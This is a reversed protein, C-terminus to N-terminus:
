SSKKREAALEALHGDYLRDAIPVYEKYWDDNGKKNGGILLIANRRPDFAYLVRYPSGKHQIRLERMHSHRSLAIGSSHPFNLNAGQEELHQVAADVSEQEFEDLEVWWEGFEDTYEVDVAM